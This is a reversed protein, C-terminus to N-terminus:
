SKGEDRLRRLANGREWGRDYDAGQGIAHTGELGDDFGLAERDSAFPLGDEAGWYRDNAERRELAERGEWYM